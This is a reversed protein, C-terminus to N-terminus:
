QTRTKRLTVNIRCIDDSWRFSSGALVFRYSAFEGGGDRVVFIEGAFDRFDFWGNLELQLLDQAQANCYPVHSHCLVLQDAVNHQSDVVQDAQQLLPPLVYPAQRDFCWHRRGLAQVLSKPIIQDRRNSKQSICTLFGKHYVDCSSFSCHAQECRIFASSALSIIKM